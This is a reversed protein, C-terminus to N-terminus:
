NSINFDFDFGINPISFPMICEILKMMESM